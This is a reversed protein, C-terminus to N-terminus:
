GFRKKYNKCIYSSCELFQFLILCPQGCYCVNPWFPKEKEKQPLLTIKDMDVLCYSSASQRWHFNTDGITKSATEGINVDPQVLVWLSHNSEYWGVVTGTYTGGRSLFDYHIFTCKRGTNKEAYERLTLM